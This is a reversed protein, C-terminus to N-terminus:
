GLDVHKSAKSRAASLRIRQADLWARAASESRFFEHEVSQGSVLKSAKFLLAALAHTVLSSGFIATASVYRLERRYEASLRRAEPTMTGASSADVLILVYGNNEFYRSNLARFSPMHEVTLDGVFKALYMDKSCLVRHPGIQVWDAEPVQASM